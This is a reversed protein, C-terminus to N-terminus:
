INLYGSRFVRWYYQAANLKTRKYTVGPRSYNKDKLLITIKISSKTVKKLTIIQNEELVYKGNRKFYFKAYTKLFNNNFKGNKYKYQYTKWVIKMWGLEQDNVIKTGQDVKVWAAEATGVIMFGVFVMLFMTVAKLKKNVNIMGLIDKLSM